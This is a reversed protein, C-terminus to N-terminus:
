VSNNSRTLSRRIPRYRVWQLAYGLNIVVIFALVVLLLPVVWSM